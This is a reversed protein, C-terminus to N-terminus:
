PRKARLQAIYELEKKSKQDDPNRALSQKYKAEAADLQGLEVLAFGQGRLARGHEVLQVQPDSILKIAQEAAEYAALSHSWDKDQQYLYGREALYRAYGPSLALAAELAALADARRHLDNLAYSKIFWAEAWTAGLALAARKHEAADVMYSLAEASEHACYIKRSESAYRAQFTSLVQEATELALAPQGAAALSQAEVLKQALTPEAPASAREEDPKIAATPKSVPRGRMQAVYAPLEGRGRVALLHDLSPSIVKRDKLRTTSFAKLVLYINLEGEVGALPQDVRVNARLQAAANGALFGTLVLNKVGDDLDEVLYRHLGEDITVTLDHSQIVFDRIREVEGDAMGLPSTLYREMIALMEPYQAPRATPRAGGCAIVGLIVLAGLRM